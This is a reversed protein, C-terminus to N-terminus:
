SCCGSGPHGHGLIMPGSGILYDIYRTGDAAEVYAGDGSAIMISPDFNGFGGAPLVHQAREHLSPREHYHHKQYDNSALM